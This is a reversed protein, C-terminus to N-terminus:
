PLRSLLEELAEALPKLTDPNVPYDFVFPETAGKIARESLTVRIVCPAQEAYTACEEEPATLLYQAIIMRLSYTEYIPTAYYEHELASLAKQLAPVWSPIEKAPVNENLLIEQLVVNQDALGFMEKFTFEALRYDRNRMLLRYYHENAPSELLPFRRTMTSGDNLTITFETDEFLSHYRNEGIMVRQYEIFHQLQKSSSLNRPVSLGPNDPSVTQGYLEMFDAIDREDTLSIQTTVSGAGDYRDDHYSITVKKVDSTQPTKVSFGFAGSMVIAMWITLPVIAAVAPRILARWNLKGKGQFLNFVWLSLVLGLVVGIIFPASSYIGASVGKTTYSAIALRLYHCSYGGLLSVGLTVVWQTVMVPYRLTGSSRAHEAQRKRFLYWSMLASLILLALSFWDFISPHSLFFASMPSFLQIIRLIWSPVGGSSVLSPAIFGPLFSATADTFLLVVLPWFINVLIFMTIASSTKESVLYFIQMIFFFLLIKVILSAFSIWYDTFDQATMVYGYKTANRVYIVLYHIVAMITSPALLNVIASVNLRRYLGGRSLPLAYMFDASPTRHMFSFYQHNVVFSMVFLVLGYSFGPFVTFRGGIFSVITTM